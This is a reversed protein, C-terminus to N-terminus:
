HDPNSLSESQGPDRGRDPRDAVSVVLREHLRRDAQELGLGDFRLPRPLRQRLDLEGSGLPEVPVVVVSEVILDPVVFMSTVQGDAVEARGDEPM